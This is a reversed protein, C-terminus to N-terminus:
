LLPKGSLFSVWKSLDLAAVAINMIFSNRYFHNSPPSCVRCDHFVDPSLHLLNGVSNRHLHCCGQPYLTVIPCACLPSCCSSFYQRVPSGPLPSSLSIVLAQDWVFVEVLSSILFPAQLSRVSNLALKTPHTLVTTAISYCIDQALVM